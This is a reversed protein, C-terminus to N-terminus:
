QRATQKREENADTRVLRLLSRMLTRENGNVDVVENSEVKKLRILQRYVAIQQQRKWSHASVLDDANTM